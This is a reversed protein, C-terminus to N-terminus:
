LNSWAAMSCIWKRNTNCGASKSGDHNLCVCDSDQLIAFTNNFESGDTWKWPQGQGGRRLGIWYDADGKRKMLYDLEQQTKMCALSSNQSTCFSQAVDWNGVDESFLYCRGRYWMWGDACPDPHSVENGSVQNQKCARAITTVTIITMGILLVILVSLLCVMFRLVPIRRCLGNSEGYYGPKSTASPVSLGYSSKNFQKGKSCDQLLPAPVLYVDTRQGM